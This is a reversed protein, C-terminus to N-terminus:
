VRIALYNQWSGNLPLKGNKNFKGSFIAKRLEGILKNYKYLENEKYKLMQM